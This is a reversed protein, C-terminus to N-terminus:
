GAPVTPDSADGILYRRPKAQAQVVRGQSALMELANAVAGASRNLIKAIATPSLRQALCAEVQDRLEGARLRGAAPPQDRSDAQAALAAPSTAAPTVAGQATAILTWRDPSRRGGAYGGPRRLVRGQGALAGLLKTATSRGIGAAEALEGASSDPRDALVGLLAHVTPSSIAPEPGM